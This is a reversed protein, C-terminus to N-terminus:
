YIIFNIRWASLSALWMQYINQYLEWSVHTNTVWLATRSSVRILEIELDSRLCIEKDRLPSNVKYDTLNYRWGALQAVSYSTHRLFRWWLSFVTGAHNQAWMPTKPWSLNNMAFSVQPIASIFNSNQSFQRLHKLHTTIHRLWIHYHNLPTTTFGQLSNQKLYISECIAVELRM